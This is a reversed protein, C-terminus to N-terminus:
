YSELLHNSKVELAIPFGHLIERLSSVCDSQHKQFTVTLFNPPHSVPFLWGASMYQCRGLTRCTPCSVSSWHVLSHECSEGTRLGGFCPARYKGSWKQFKTPFNSHSVSSFELRTTLNDVFYFSLHSCFLDLFFFSLLFPQQSSILSAPKITASLLQLALPAPFDRPYPSHHSSLFPPDYHM